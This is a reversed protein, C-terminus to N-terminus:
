SGCPQQWIWDMIKKGTLGKNQADYAQLWRKMDHFFQGKGEKRSLKQDINSKKCVHRKNPKM